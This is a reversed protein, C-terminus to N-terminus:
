RSGMGFAIFRGALLGLPGSLACWAALLYLAATM